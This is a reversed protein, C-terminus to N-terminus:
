VGEEDPPGVPDDTLVLRLGAGEPALLLDPVAGDAVQRHGFPGRAHDYRDGAFAADPQPRGFSAVCLGDLEHRTRLPRSREADAEAAVVACAVQDAREGVAPERRPVEVRHILLRIPALGVGPGIQVRM